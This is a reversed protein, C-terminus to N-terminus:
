MGAVSNLLMEIDGEYDAEALNKNLVNEHEQCCVGELVLKGDSFSVAAKRGHTPCKIDELVAKIKKYEFM